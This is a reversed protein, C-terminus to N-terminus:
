QFYLTQTFFLSYSHSWYDSREVTASIWCEDSATLAMLGAVMLEEGVIGSELIKM